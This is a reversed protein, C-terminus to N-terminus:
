IGSHSADYMFIKNARPVSHPVVNGVIFVPQEIRKWLSM